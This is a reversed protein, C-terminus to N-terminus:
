HGGSYILPKYNFAAVRDSNHCTECTQISPKRQISEPDGTEAHEAGPGHCTECGVDSLHPTEKYTTFGGQGYGTTHCEYCGQVEEATLDSAMIEVSKWSTAKKSNSSFSAYEDEHCDACAKSGVYSNQSATAVTTALLAAVAAALVFPGVKM